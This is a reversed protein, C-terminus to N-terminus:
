EEGRTDEVESKARKKKAGWMKNAREKISGSSGKVAAAEANHAAVQEPTMLEFKHKYRDYRLTVEGIEGITGRYRIKKTEVKVLGNEEPYIMIGVDPKNAWHASDSIDYLSPRPYEGDKNKQLKAPHAVVIIHVDYKKAFRKLAKIAWGTYETLSMGPARPHDMENWPDLVVLKINYRIIAQALRELVWNIDALQDDDINHLLFKFHKDIAEDAEKLKESGKPELHAPRIMYHSRMWQRHDPKPSQEFSAICVNWGTLFAMNCTIENVLTTKGAGPIGSIVTLDGQRLKYLSEVGDVSCSYVPLTPPEPIDSMSYIGDLVMYDANRLTDMVGEEGKALLVDNLDKITTLNGNVDSVTGEPYKVWKCKARGIVRSLASLLNHGSTDNDVALIYYPAPPLEKLYEFKKTDIEEMEHAPAGNPVSVAFFGCQLAVVMDMEGETIVIPEEPPKNAMQDLNILCQESGKEQHFMKEGTITRYKRGVIQGNKLYPIEIWDRGHKKDPKTKWGLNSMVELSLGRKQSLIEIHKPILM